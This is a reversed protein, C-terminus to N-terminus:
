GAQQRAYAIFDDILRRSISIPAPIQPLCDASFWEAADMEDEELSIEGSEYEATFALMLSNPFPWPQSGFYRINKIRLGVEEFVEREVCQEVTEGPEVFGALVSYMGPLFHHARALLIEPGDAGMRCVRVIMAPSLRPYSTFGCSPCKKARENEMAEALKGCRSCFQHTRDWDVIQVARGALWFLDDDLQGYLARLGQFSMGAAPEIGNDIEASFCHIPTEGELYGLYQKRTLPFGLEQPDTLWPIDAHGGNEAVLLQQNKFIFWYGPIGHQAPPKITSTFQRKM